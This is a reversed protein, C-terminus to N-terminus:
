WLGRVVKAIPNIKSAGTKALVQNCALCKVKTTAAGFLTQENGCGPCKVKVFGVRHIKGFDNKKM